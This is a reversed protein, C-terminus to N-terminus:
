RHRASGQHTRQYKEDEVNGPPCRFPQRVAETEVQERPMILCEALFGAVLDAREEALAQTEATAVVQVPSYPQRRIEDTSRVLWKRGAWTLQEPM